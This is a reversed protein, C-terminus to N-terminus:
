GESSAAAEEKVAEYVTGQEDDAGKQGRIIEAIQDQYAQWERVLMQYYGRGPETMRYYKRNRGQFQRDYAEIYRHESLRKLVPYLASDKLGSVPKIMQSIQYGYSDGQDVISLILLELLPPTLSFIM